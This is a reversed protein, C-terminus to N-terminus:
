SAYEEVPQWEDPDEATLQEYAGKKGAQRVLIADGLEVEAVADEDTAHSDPVTGVTGSTVDFRLIPM